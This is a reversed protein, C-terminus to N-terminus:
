EGLPSPRSRPGSQLREEEPELARMYVAPLNVVEEEGFPQDLKVLWAWETQGHKLITGPSTNLGEPFIRGTGWCTVFVRQNSHLGGTLFQELDSNFESEPLEGDENALEAYLRKALAFALSLQQSLHEPGREEM